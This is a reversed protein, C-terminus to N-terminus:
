GDAAVKASVNMFRKGLGRGHQHLKLGKPLTPAQEGFLKQILQEDFNFTHAVEALQNVLAEAVDEASSNASFFYSHGLMADPGVNERLVRNASAHWEIVTHLQEARHPGLLQALQQGYVVEATIWSFRRRLALDITGVSRDTTNMTGLIHLNSPVILHKRGGLAGTPGDLATQLQVSSIRGRVALEQDTLVSSFDEPRWTWFPSEDNRVNDQSSSLAQVRKSSEIVMLLDGLVRATNARNIEDIFILYDHNPDRTARECMLLFSGPVASFEAGIPRLGVVFDEYSTSPHFVLVSVRDHYHVKLADLSHTKGSGAVGELIVNKHKGLQIVLQEVLANRDDGSGVMGSSQNASESAGRERWSNFLWICTDADEATGQLATPAHQLWMYSASSPVSGTNKEKLDEIIAGAALLVPLSITALEWLESIDKPSKRHPADWERNPDLYRFFASLDGRLIFLSRLENRPDAVFEARAPPYETCRAIFDAKERGDAFQLLLFVSARLQERLGGEVTLQAYRDRLSKEDLDLIEM